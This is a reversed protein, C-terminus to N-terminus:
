TWAYHLDDIWTPQPAAAAFPRDLINHSVVAPERTDKPLGRRRPRARLGNERMLRGVRHLGCSLGEALVDHWVRRAGYTRDSSKFSRDISSVLIEDHRSRASPSRNLWAHFGSRSVDLASCLWAVPWIGRHRAIFAFRMDSGERLLSRGKKPHRAASEAEGSGQTASRDRAAGAEGAWPRSVRAASRGIARAGM